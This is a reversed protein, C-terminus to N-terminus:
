VLKLSPHVRYMRLTMGHSCFSVQVGHLEFTLSFTFNYQLTFKKQQWFSVCSTAIYKQSGCTHSLHCPQYVKLPVAVTIGWGDRYGHLCEVDQLVVVWLTQAQCDAVVGRAEELESPLYM